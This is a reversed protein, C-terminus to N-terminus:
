SVPALNAAVDTSYAKLAPLIGALAGLVIMGAPALAFVPHWRAADLVVGTQARIIIAAAALVAAYVFFGCLTGLTAIASAELVIASFVTAKRAGLARL